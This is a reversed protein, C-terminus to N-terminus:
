NKSLLTQSHDPHCTRTELLLSLTPGEQKDILKNFVMALDDFAGNKTARKLTIKVLNRTVFLQDAIGQLSMVGRVAKGTEERIKLHHRLLRELISTRVTFVRLCGVMERKKSQQVLIARSNASAISFWGGLKRSKKCFIM